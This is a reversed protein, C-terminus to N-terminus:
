HARTAANTYRDGSHASWGDLEAHQVFSGDELLWEVGESGDEALYSSRDGQLDFEAEYEFRPADFPITTVLRDAVSPRDVQPRPAVDAAVVTRSELRSATSAPARAPAPRILDRTAVTM